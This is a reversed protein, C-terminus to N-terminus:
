LQWVLCSLIRDLKSVTNQSFPLHFPISQLITRCSDPEYSSPINTAKWTFFKDTSLAANKLNVAFIFHGVILATKIVYFKNVYSNNNNNNNDDDDGDDIDDDSFCM